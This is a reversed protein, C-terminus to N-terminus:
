GIRYHHLLGEYRQCGIGEEQVFPLGKETEHCNKGGPGLEKGLEELTDKVAVSSASEGQYVIVVVPIGDAV